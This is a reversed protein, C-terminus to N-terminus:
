GQLRVASDWPLAWLVMHTCTRGVTSHCAGAVREVSPESSVILTIYGLYRPGGIIAWFEQYPGNGGVAFPQLVMCGM